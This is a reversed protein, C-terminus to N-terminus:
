DMWSLASFYPNNLICQCHLQETVDVMLIRRFLFVHKGPQVQLRAFLDLHVNPPSKQLFFPVILFFIYGSGLDRTNNEASLQGPSAASRCIHTPNIKMHHIIM